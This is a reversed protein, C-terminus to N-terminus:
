RRRRGTYQMAEGKGFGYSFGLAFFRSRFRRSYTYFSEQSAESERIRSAFVDRVSISFVGKGKLIKKRAGLNAFLVDSTSGQITQYGSRYNGTVEMDIGHALKFKATAQTNWSSATFDFDREALRGERVFVNYNFDAKLSMWKVPDYRTNFEVGTSRRVGINMPTTTNVNDEFTSIRDIVATTHKHFIGINWFTKGFSYIGALEYSDTYEPLLNPNGTRISFNNRINFFPNLDWMRPRFIRRSYGGQVSFQPNVKYSLHASPFFDTYNQPNTEQTNVLLTQLDTNEMRLGMKLGWKDHEYAGTAYLGLVKQDYEFLNTLGVDSVWIDNELDSVEYDNSVEQIVYQTGTELTVKKSFPKTYDVKFTYRGEQFNTKTQQTADQDTGGDLNTNLFESALDKGFFNGLASVTLGHDKHDKFQKKYQLEFQYKPNTADTSERRQWESEIVGLANELRFTTTSPQSEIEYAFSGSLTLVNYRNIHYDTGLRINYFNENRYEEGQSYITTDTLLNRNVNRRDQPLERYGFGMQTFLNFKETRHNLSFGISHNHPLGTNVSVSGNTGKKEEKKLVINIIGATGESEYKASPNTIVEVKDIMDATITGLANSEDSALVSPKGNILIQVGTNGRLSVQGEINVTVSPVNDLVEFASAGTSSLDKGVNFVRKDLRFETSSREAEVVIDNMVEENQILFVTGLNVRGDKIVFSAIKSELYGIFKLTLHFDKAGVRMQFAGTPDTTAGAIATSDTNSIAMVTAFEVPQNTKGDLVKGSVSISIGEQAFVQCALLSLTLIAILKKLPTHM